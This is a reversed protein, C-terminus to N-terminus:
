DTRTRMMPLCVDLTRSCPLQLFSLRTECCPLLFLGHTSRFRNKPRFVRFTRFEGIYAAKGGPATCMDLVRENEQPALAMVPLFSAAAQIMYHGALYEPTAGARWVCVFLDTLIATPAKSNVHGSLEGIPVPSDFVQLGVKSWKEIPELNVGRNILAQWPLLVREAPIKSFFGTFSFRVCKVQSM